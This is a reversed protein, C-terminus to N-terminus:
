CGNLFRGICQTVEGISVSMNQNADASPCLALPQGLFVNICKTVDGISVTGNGDCDGTCLPPGAIHLAFPGNDFQTFGDVVIVVQQGATLNVTVLSNLTNPCSGTDDGCGSPLEAGGCSGAHVTLVTDFPSNCTDITYSGTAPATYLFTAEPADNPNPGTCSTSSFLNAGGATSGTVSVPLASGLNTQPCGGFTATPTPTATAMGTVTPTVTPAQTSTRTPTGTPTRTPTNTPATPATPTRTPTRTQTLTSAGTPTSTPTVGPGNIHVTFPGKDSITVGDVVIVVKQGAALTVKVESDTPNPCAGARNDNCGGPLEAGDCSGDRVSLVTDFSSGCTDIFYDGSLPATYLLLGEPDNTVASCTSSPIVNKMNNRTEGTFSVSLANGLNTQPCEGIEYMGRGHTAIRLLHWPEQIAMDFIPLRPLGGGFVKWNSGNDFSQYVGIDTGVYLISFGPASGMAVAVADAPVDPLPNPGQFGNRGKLIPTGNLNTVQWIHSQAEATGNLYGAVTVWATFKDTPDIVIRTIYKDPITSGAGVPDLSVLTSSGTTTYFLAGNNLGVVRVNDDQPAVAIASIPVGAVLPAQSVVVNNQGKDASRYLRDSGFYVANPNGPGLVLPAYFNVDDTCTIGNHTSGSCGFFAWGNDHADMTSDVRAYGILSASKSNFYTHYMVVNTTDAANQDIAAFGGDGFDVRNWPLPGQYLNTGNDQTGGIAFNLNSPHLALSQFQTASFTATNLSVWAVDGTAPNFTGKFVGGDNGEYITTTSSPAITIAHTDAHLGTSRETFNTGGDTSAAFARSGTNQDPINGGIFINNANGPDLAVGIDYFCQTGCFGNAATLTTPWTAGGDTSKLVRGNSTGTAALATVTQGVKNIALKSGVQGLTVVRTCTPATGGGAGQSAVSANTTRYIGHLSTGGFDIVGLLMNNTSGPEFVIDTVAQGGNAGATFAVLSFTPAPNTAANPSFYLGLPAGTLNLDGKGSIGLTNGVFIRDANTPDVAISTIAKGAFAHTLGNVIFGTGNVLADFPGSVLPNVSDANDIRYLGVGFFSDASLNGEGTGVFLLSPNSPAIALAGIALSQATDMLPAWTAGGDLTRYVGGQATGVYAINPNTPHVAIATVRGSVPNVVGGFTQGNPIPAPGLPDWGLNVASFPLLASMTRQIQTDMQQLARIRRDPDFAKGREWGRLIADHEARLRLYTERDITSAFGPLDPDEEAVATRAITVAALALWLGVITVARSLIGMRVGRSPMPGFM